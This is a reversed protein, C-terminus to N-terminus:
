MQERLRRSAYRPRQELHPLTLQPEEPIDPEVPWLRHIDEEVPGATTESTTEATTHQRNRLLQLKNWQWRQQFHKSHMQRRKKWKHRGKRLSKCQLHGYRPWECLM